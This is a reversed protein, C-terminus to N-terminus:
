GVRRGLTGEWLRALQAYFLSRPQGRSVALCRLRLRNSSYTILRHAILKSSHPAKLQPRNHVSTVGYRTRMQEALIRATARVRQAAM